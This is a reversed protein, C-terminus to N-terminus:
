SGQKKIPKLWRDMHAMARLAPEMGRRINEREEDTLGEAEWPMIQPPRGGSPTVADSERRVLAGSAEPRIALSTGTQQPVINRIQSNARKALGAVEAAAACEAIRAKEKRVRQWTIRATQPLIRKGGLATIGQQELEACLETWRVGGNAKSLTTFFVDYNELMWIFLPSRRAPKSVIRFIREVDRKKASM